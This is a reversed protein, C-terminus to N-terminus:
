RFRHSLYRMADAPNKLGAQLRGLHDSYNRWWSWGMFENYPFENLAPWTEAVVGKLLRDFRHDMPASQYSLEVVPRFIFPAFLDRPATFGIYRPAGWNGLRLEQYALDLTTFTDFETVEDLWDEVEEIVEPHTPRQLRKVLDTEDLETGQTDSVQWYYGRFIEGGYGHIQADMDINQITPFMDRVATGVTYMSRRMFEETKDDTALKVPIGRWEIDMDKAIRRAVHEDQRYDEGTFTYTSIRGDMAWTRSVALLSRSDIGATIGLKPTGYNTVITEIVRELEDVIRRTASELNVTHAVDSVNTPWFRLVEWTSLDLAHNPLLQSVGRYYTTTGPIWCGTATNLVDFLDDRFHTEHSVRPISLASCAVYEGRDDYVVPLTGGADTFLLPGEELGIIGIYRGILRSQIRDILDVSASRSSGDLHLKCTRGNAHIDLPSGVILGVMEGSAIVPTETFDSDYIVTWEGFSAIDFEDQVEEIVGQTITYQGPLPTWQSAM